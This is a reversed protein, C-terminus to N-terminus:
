VAITKTHLMSQSAKHKFCVEKEIRYSSFNLKYNHMNVTTKSFGFLHLDFETSEKAIGCTKIKAEEGDVSGM